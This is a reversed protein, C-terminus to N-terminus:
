QPLEKNTQDFLGITVNTADKKMHWKDGKPQRVKSDGEKHEGIGPSGDKSLGGEGDNYWVFHLQVYGSPSFGAGRTWTLAKQKAMRGGLRNNRNNGTGPDRYEMTGM